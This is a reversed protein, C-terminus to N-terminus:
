SQHILGEDMKLEVWLICFCQYLKLHFWSKEVRSIEHFVSNHSNWLDFGNPGGTSWCYARSIHTIILKSGEAYLMWLKTLQRKEANRIKPWFLTLLKVGEGRRKTEVKQHLFRQGKTRTWAIGKNPSQPTIDRGRQGPALGSAPERGIQHQGERGRTPPLWLQHMAMPVCGWMDWKEVSSAVRNPAYQCGLTWDTPM